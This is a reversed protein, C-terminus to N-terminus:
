ANLNMIIACSGFGVLPSLVVQGVFFLSTNVWAQRKLNPAGYKVAQIWGCLFCCGVLIALWALVILISVAENGSGYSMGIALILAWPALLGPMLVGAWMLFQEGANLKRAVDPVESRAPPEPEM